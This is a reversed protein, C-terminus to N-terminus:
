DVLDYSAGQSKSAELRLSELLVSPSVNVLLPEDAQSEISTKGNESVSPRVFVFRSIQPM